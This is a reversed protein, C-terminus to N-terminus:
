AKTLAPMNVMYGDNNLVIIGAKVLSELFLKDFKFPVLSHSIKDRVFLVLEKLDLPSIMQLIQHHNGSRNSYVVQAEKGKLSDIYDRLEERWKRGSIGSYNSVEFTRCYGDDSGKTPMVKIEIGLRYLSPYRLETNYGEIKVARKILDNSGFASDPEYSVPLALLMKVRADITEETKDGVPGAIASSLSATKGNNGAEHMERLENYSVGNEPPYKFRSDLEKIKSVLEHNEPFDLAYLVMATWWLRKEIHMPKGSSTGYIYGNTIHHLFECLGPPTLHISPALEASFSTWSLGKERVAQKVEVGLPEYNMAM